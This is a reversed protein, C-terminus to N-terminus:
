YSRHNMSKGTALASCLVVQKTIIECAAMCLLICLRAYERTLLKSLVNGKSSAIFYCNQREQSRTRMKSSELCVARNSIAWGRCSEKKFEKMNRSSSRDVKLAGAECVTVWM